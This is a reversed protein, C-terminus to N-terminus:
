KALLRGLKENESISDGMHKLFEPRIRKRRLFDQLAETLLGAVSQHHERAHKQFEKWIREDVKSSIKKTAVTM